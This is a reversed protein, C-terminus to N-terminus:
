VTPANADHISGDAAQTSVLYDLARAVFPGDARVYRRPSDVM